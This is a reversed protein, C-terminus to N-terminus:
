LGFGGEELSTPPEESVAQSQSIQEHHTAENDDTADYDAQTEEDNLPEDGNHSNTISEMSSDVDDAIQEETDHYADEEEENTSSGMSISDNSTHAHKDQAKDSNRKRIQQLITNTDLNAIHLVNKRESQKNKTQTHLLMAQQLEKLEDPTIELIDDTSTHPTRSRGAHHQTSISDQGSYMKGLISAQPRTCDEELSMASLDFEMFDQSGTIKDEMMNAYAVEAITDEVQDTILNYKFSTMEKIYTSDFAKKLVKTDYIHALYPYLYDVMAKAEDSMSQHYAFVYEESDYALDVSRFLPTNKVFKSQIQM